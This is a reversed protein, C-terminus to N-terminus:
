RSQNERIQKPSWGTVKKFRRSFFLPDSYGVESAIAKIPIDTEILMERAKQMRIMDRWKTINSNLESRFLSTITSSSANTYEAVQELTFKEAYHEQIYDCAAVLRKDLTVGSSKSVCEDFLLILKEILNIHIAKKNKLDSHSVDIISSFAKFIERDVYSDNIPYTTLTTDRRKLPNLFQHWNDRPYFLSIFVLGPEDGAHDGVSFKIGGPILLLDSGTSVIKQNGTGYISVGGKAIYILSWGDKPAYICRPYDEEGTNPFELQASMVQMSDLLNNRCYNWVGSIIGEGEVRDDSDTGAQEKAVLQQLTDLLEMRQAESWQSIDFIEEISLTIDDGLVEVVKSIRELLEPSSEGTKLMKTLLEAHKFAEAQIETSSLIPM